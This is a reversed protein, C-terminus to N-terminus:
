NSTNLGEILLIRYHTFQPLVTSANYVTVFNGQHLYTATLGNQNTIPLPTFADLTTYVQVVVVLGPKSFDGSAVTFKDGLVQGEFTKVNVFVEQYETKTREEVGFLKRGIRQCGCILFCALFFGRLAIYKM